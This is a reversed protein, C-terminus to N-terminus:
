FVPFRVLRFRRCDRGAGVSVWRCWCASSLAALTATSRGTKFAAKLGGMQKLLIFTELLISTMLGNMMALGMIAMPHWGSDPWLFQFAAITGFDGISCGLLCWFTNKASRSWTHKCSWHFTESSM